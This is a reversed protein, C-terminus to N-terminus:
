KLKATVPNRLGEYGTLTMRVAGVLINAKIELPIKNADDTVYVVLDEESKFVRGKMVVPMFKLVRFTGVDTKLKVRGKFKFKFNHMEHDLFMPVEFIDGERAQSFDITRAYYFASVIDQTHLPIDYSVGKSVVKKQYQDFAYYDTMLFGGENVDRAFAWPMIADRDVYSEYKDRVKYFWDFSNVTRGTAVIHYCSKSAMQVPQSQVRMEGVGANIFGYHLRFTLVEGSQFATNNIKRIRNDPDKAGAELLEQAGSNLSPLALSFLFVFCTFISKMFVTEIPLQLIGALDFL